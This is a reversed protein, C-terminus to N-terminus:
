IPSKWFERFCDHVYTKLLDLNPYTVYTYYDKNQNQASPFIVLYAEKSELEYVEAENGMATPWKDKLVGGPIIKGSKTHSNPLPHNARFTDKAWSYLDRFTLPRRLDAAYVLERNPKSHPYWLDVQMGDQVLADVLPKFDLDATLLSAQHMNRRFSHMLMDVTIMIDVKKQQVTRRRRRAEGEYVHMGSIARLDDFFAEQVAVRSDYEEDSEKKKRPPLSDYYFTKNHGQVLKQWDL